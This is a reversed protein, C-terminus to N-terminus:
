RLQEAEEGQVESAVLIMSNIVRTQTPDPTLITAQHLVGLSNSGDSLFPQCSNNILLVQAYRSDFVELRTTYSALRQEGRTFMPNYDALFQRPTINLDHAARTYDAMQLESQVATPEYGLLLYSEDPAGDLHFKTTNQQDFHIMSLSNLHRDRKERHLADLAEKLEIMFRRLLISEMQHSFRILAFGPATFDTRFVQGYVRETLRAFLEGSVGPDIVTPYSEQSYMFLLIASPPTPEQNGRPSKLGRPFGNRWLVNARLLTQGQRRVM